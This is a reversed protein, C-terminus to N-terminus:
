GVRHTKSGDIEITSSNIVGWPAPSAIYPGCRHIKKRRKEIVGESDSSSGSTSVCISLSDPQISYSPQSNWSNMRETQSQQKKSRSQHKRNPPPSIYFNSLRKQQAIRLREMEELTHASLASVDDDDFLMGHTPIELTDGRKQQQKTSQRANFGGNRERLRMIVDDAAINSSNKKDLSGERPNTENDTYHLPRCGGIFLSAADVVGVCPAFFRKMSDVFSSASGEWGISDVTPVNQKSAGNINKRDNSHSAGDEQHQEEEVIPRPIDIRRCRNDGSRMEGATGKM